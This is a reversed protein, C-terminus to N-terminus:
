LGVHIAAQNIEHAVVTGTEVHGIRLLQEARELTQMRRRLKLAGANTQCKHLADDRPMTPADPSFRRRTLARRKAERQPVEVGVLRASFDERGFPGLQQTM